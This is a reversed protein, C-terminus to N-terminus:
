TLPAFRGYGANTKGGIGEREVVESLLDKLLGHWAEPARFAFLFEVGARVCLFAAPIPEEWEKPTDFGKEGRYYGPHHPTVVDVMLPPADAPALWADYVEFAGAGELHGFADMWASLAKQKEEPFGKALEKLTADPSFVEGDGKKAGLKDTLGLRRALARRMAGKLASGDIRPVGFPKAFRLGNELVGKEALGFAVPSRAKSRFSACEPAMEALSAAYREFAARYEPGPKIKAVRDLHRHKQDADGGSLADPKVVRFYELSFNSRAASPALNDFAGRM